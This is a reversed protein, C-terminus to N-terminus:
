RWAAVERAAETAIPAPAPSEETFAAESVLPTEVSTDPEVESTVPNLVVQEGEHLGMSIELLDPTAEGLKVERRELGDEHAVYCFEHGGEHAIAEAPVAIVDSRRNLEIEVQATMGPKIGIPASDLKVKGDFYRVDSRWNYTPIAAVSTVHGELKRGPLGEVTVRARMGGAIENVMSEHLYTVVEMDTLDPLYFLDQKQRVSMGEEIRIDRREDNAYIVFGDHPARITCLEVQKELKALRGLNRTLRLDQYKLTAEAALVDGGLVKLTRPATWRLFLEFAAREQGLAFLARANNLEENSVQASPVYGKEKMRRAWEMRDKTREQDSRALAISREFDKITEQRLGEQFETVALKAIEHNLVAQHHDAKSREVTMRQQRLLEEYDSSDLVALVEGKRAYTGEPVVSLLVSAGGATFRQGMIGITINELECEILTRKSSEVRGSATHEPFLDMRRVDALAYKRAPPVSHRMKGSYSILGITALAGFGVIVIATLGSPRFTRRQRM